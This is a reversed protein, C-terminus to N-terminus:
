VTRCALSSTESPVNILKAQLSPLDRIVCRVLDPNILRREQPHQLAQCCISGDRISAYCAKSKEAVDCGGFTETANPAPPSSRVAAPFVPWIPAMNSVRLVVEPKRAPLQVIDAM